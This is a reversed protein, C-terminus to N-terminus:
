DSRMTGDDEWRDEVWGARPAGEAGPMWSVSRELRDSEVGAGLVDLGTSSWDVCGSSDRRECHRVVCSLRLISVSLRCNPMASGTLRPMSSLMTRAPSHRGIHRPPIPPEPTCASMRAPRSPSIPHSSTYLPSSILSRGSKWVSISLRNVIFQYVPDVALHTASFPPPLHQENSIFNTLEVQQKSCDLPVLAPRFFTCCSHKLHIM